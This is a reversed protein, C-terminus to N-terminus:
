ESLSRLRYVPAHEDAASQYPTSFEDFAQLADEADKDARLQFSDIGCRAMYFLQDRLVDGVARLEGRYGYRERLLRAISYGRGDAFKPFEIAILEFTDLQMAVEDIEDDGNVAVGIRGRHAALDEGQAQWRPWSVIIDGDELPADDPLRQWGDEVIARNKIVRM